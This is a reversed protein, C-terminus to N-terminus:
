KKKNFKLCRNCIWIHDLKWWFTFWCSCKYNFKKQEPNILVWDEDMTWDILGEIMAEAIEWM